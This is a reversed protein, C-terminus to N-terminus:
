SGCIDNPLTADIISKPSYPILDKYAEGTGLFLIPVGTVDAISIANGGKADCDLKTLIIGDIKVFKKFESIQTTIVNGATSEGVYITIDPKVVRDMKQIENILNKNTEQRGASDILVVTIGHAKAYSIADFAVSAADAGYSSKIVPLGLANAHHETQEIAAARFTDSASLVSRIGNSKLMYAIKAITTTKGTGNPGLFLIKVPIENKAIRNKVYDKIELNTANKSLIELLSDKVKQILADNLNKADMSADELEKKLDELFKDTTDYAVDSELMAIKLMDLFNEIESDKLKVKSFFASKLKTSISLKIMESRKSEERKKASETNAATGLDVLNDRKEIVAEDREPQKDVHKVEVYNPEKENKPHNGERGKKDILLEKESEEIEEEKKSFSKIANSLKKKLGDFM